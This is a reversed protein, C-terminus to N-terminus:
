LGVNILCHTPLKGEESLVKMGSSTRHDKSFKDIADMVVPYSKDHSEPFFGSYVMEKFIEFASALDMDSLFASLLAIYIFSDPKMEKQEMERLYHLAASPRKCICLGYILAMFAVRNPSCGKREMEKWVLLADDPREERCFGDVLTSYTVVNPERDEESMKSLLSMARDVSGSKSWSDILLSYTVVSPCLGKVVIEDLLKEAEAVRNVKCLGRIVINFAVVDPCHGRSCLDRLLNLARDVEQIKILGGMAASYSVIDPLFGLQVMSDLFDCAEVARGRDCLEKVLLTSNKIWPEHGCARMVKLMDIAGVVDKRKCLCGYISNYTFHTPEIESEKMDRLLERSEDLRDSDCLGNILNNYILVSPRGVFQKLDNFLSLALDLQGNTLLGDIVISFSAANPFVLRKDKFFDDMQVDSFKSQIMMQLLRCAEDVQEENVYCTLVANYILVLIKEEKDELVEELLKTIVSRDPFASILKTFIGVDPAVGFQKMESLLSLARQADNSKCLGGILVDFLSVPPTFGVRCMKEFLQLARDVRDEKVFGHILVCFTKESLRVGQGDMREVLEFAKDVDGWKSFSLALMSCVRADILGKEKMGDYVRLAQDFRRAKCYAQVVPTLTFKDFEWGFGKMEELRAEVLDVEGAKSLAELLCNYCYVNPVCLGKVRMEDFLHHAEQALGVEGLCRILFGLAGPTFSCPASEVLHKVVTKLHTTQRSRSFISAITNYTYCNHRYGYQHQDSAWQFFSLALKWTPLRTLVSEVLPPTLIPAFLNLEPGAANPQQTFVSVLNDAVSSDYHLNNHPSTSYSLKAIVSFFSPIKLKQTAVAM